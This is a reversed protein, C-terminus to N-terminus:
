IHCYALGLVIVLTACYLRNSVMYEQRGKPRCVQFVLSTGLRINPRNYSESMLIALGLKSM